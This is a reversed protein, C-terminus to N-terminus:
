AQAGICIKTKISHYNAQLCKWGEAFNFSHHRINYTLWFLKIQKEIWKFIYRPNLFTKWALLELLKTNGKTMRKKFFIVSKVVFDHEFSKPTRSWLKMIRSLM